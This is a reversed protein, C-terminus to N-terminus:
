VKGKDLMLSAKWFRKCNNLQKFGRSKKRVVEGDPMFELVNDEEDSSFDSSDDDYDPTAIGDDRDDIVKKNKSDDEDGVNDRTEKVEKPKVEAPINSENADSVDESEDENSNQFTEFDGDESKTEVSENEDRFGSDTETDGNVSDGNDQSSQDDLDGDNGESSSEEVEETEIIEEVPATVEEVIPEKNVANPKEQQKIDLKGPELRGVEPAM